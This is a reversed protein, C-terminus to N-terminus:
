DRLLTGDFFDVVRQEYEAPYRNIAGIHSADSAIWLSGRSGLIEAFLNNFKVEQANAGAAIWLFRTSKAEVMSDLLPKPPQEGSLVQVATFMVRATFNRYLSRESPLALLEQVCRRTAGDAVVATLAPYESVAGLLVEAGMSLGLGGIHKVEQLGQLYHVATGIDPTSSWGFRNTKGSSAGHGRLDLALVGYGHQALMQAHPRLGERSGGAGHILIIVAGNSPPLYWAALTENDAAHLTIANFGAPPAGVAEKIPFVASIAMGIPLVLYLVLIIIGTTLAVWRMIRKKNLSMSEGAKRTKLTPDPFRYTRIDIV